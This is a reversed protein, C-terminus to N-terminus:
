LFDSGTSNNNTQLVPTHHAVGVNVTSYMYTWDLQMLSTLTNKHPTQHKPKYVEMFEKVAKKLKLLSVPVMTQINQIWSDSLTAVM